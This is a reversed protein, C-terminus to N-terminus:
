MDSHTVVARIATPDLEGPWGDIEVYRFGHFTFRPEWTEAGEGRAIYQDTAKATRITEVDIEGGTMVEAHRLTIVTGASAALCTRGSIWWWGGPRHPSSRWQLWSRSGGSRSPPLIPLRM